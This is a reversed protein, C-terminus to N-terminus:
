GCDSSKRVQKESQMRKIGIKLRDGSKGCCSSSDKGIKGKVRLCKKEPSAKSLPQAAHSYDNQKDSDQGLETDGSPLNKEGLCWAGTLIFDCWTNGVCGLREPENIQEKGTELYKAQDRAPMGAKSAIQLEKEVIAAPPNEGWGCDMM